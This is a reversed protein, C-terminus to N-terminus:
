FLESHRGWDVATSLRREAEETPFYDDWIDLFCNSRVSRNSKQQLTHVIRSLVPVRVYPLPRAFPSVAQAGAPSAPTAEVEGTVAIDPNTM